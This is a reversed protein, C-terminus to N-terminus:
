PRRLSEAVSPGFHHNREADHCHDSDPQATYRERNSRGTLVALRVVVDNLVRTDREVTQLTLHAFRRGVLLEGPERGEACDAVSIIKGVRQYNPEWTACCRIRFSKREEAFQDDNKWIGVM